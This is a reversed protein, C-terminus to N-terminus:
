TPPQALVKIYSRKKPLLSCLTRSSFLIFKSYSSVTQAYGCWVVFDGGEIDLFTIHNNKFETPSEKKIHPHASFYEM